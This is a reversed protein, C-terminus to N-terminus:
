SGGDDYIGQSKHYMEMVNCIKADNFISEAISIKMISDRMIHGLCLMHLLNFRVSMLRDYVKQYTSIIKKGDCVGFKRGFDEFDMAMDDSLLMGATLKNYEDSPSKEGLNMLTIRSKGICYTKDLYRMLDSLEQMNGAFAHCPALYGMDYRLQSRECNNVKCLEDLYTELWVIKDSHLVDLVKYKGHEKFIEIAHHSYEKVENLVDSYVKITTFEQIESSKPRMKLVITNSLIGNEAYYTKLEYAAEFCNSPYTNRIKEIYEGNIKKQYKVGHLLQYKENRYIVKRHYENIFCVLAMEIGTM